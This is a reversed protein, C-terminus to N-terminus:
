PAGTGEVPRPRLSEGSLAGSAEPDRRRDEALFLPWNPQRDPAMGISARSEAFEAMMEEIEAPGIM